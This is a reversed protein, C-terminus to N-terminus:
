LSLGRYARARAHNRDREQAQMRETQEASRISQAIDRALMRREQAHKKRLTEIQRQLMQRELMQAKILEDRQMQDRKIAQWAEHENRQKVKAASGTLNDWLGRLGKNLREARARAEQM